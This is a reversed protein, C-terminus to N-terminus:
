RLCLGHPVGSYIPCGHCLAFSKLGTAKQVLPIHTACLGQFGHEYTQSEATVLLTLDMLCTHLFSPVSIM